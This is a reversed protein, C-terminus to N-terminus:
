YISVLIFLILFVIDPLTNYYIKLIIYSIGHSFYIIKCSDLMIACLLLFYWTFICLCSAYNIIAFFLSFIVSLHQAPMVVLLSPSGYYCGSLSTSRVSSFCLTLSLPSRSCISLICMHTYFQEGASADHPFRMDPRTNSHVVTRTNSHELTRGPIAPHKLYQKWFLSVTKFRVRFLAFRESDFKPPAGRRFLVRNNPSSIIVFVFGFYMKNILQFLFCFLTFCLACCVRPHPIDIWRNMMM